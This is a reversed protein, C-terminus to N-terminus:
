DNSSKFRSLQPCNQSTTMIELVCLMPRDEDLTEGPVMTVDLSINVLIYCPGKQDLKNLNFVGAAVNLQGKTDIITKCHQLINLREKRGVTVEKALKASVTGRGIVTGQNLPDDQYHLGRPLNM